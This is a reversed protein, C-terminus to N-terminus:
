KETPSFDNYTGLDKIVKWYCISFRTHIPPQPHHLTFKSLFISSCVLILTQKRDNLPWQLVSPMSYFDILMHIWVPSFIKGLNLIVSHTANLAAVCSPHDRISFHLAYFAKVAALVHFVSLLCPSLFM